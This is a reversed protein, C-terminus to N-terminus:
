EESDTDNSSEESDSNTEDLNGDNFRDTRVLDGDDALATENGDDDEFDEKLWYEEGFEEELKSVGDDDKVKPTKGKLKEKYVILTIVVVVLVAFFSVIVIILTMWKTTGFLYETFTPNKPNAVGGFVVVDENVGEGRFVLFLATPKTFSPLFARQYSAFTETAVSLKNGYLEGSAFDKLSVKKKLVYEGNKYKTLNEADCAYITVTASREGGCWTIQTRRGDYYKQIKAGTVATDEDGFDIKFSYGGDALKTIESIVVGSNQGNSYTLPTTIYDTEDNKLPASVTKDPNGITSDDVWGKLDYHYKKDNEGSLVAYSLSRSDFLEKGGLRYVYVENEGYVNGNNKASLEGDRGIYGNSENVRYVIVGKQPLSGDIFGGDNTRAEIMFYDGTESYSSLVLKCAKVRGNETTPYVVYTGSKTIPAIDEEGIWNLSQLTYALPMSPFLEGGGMIDFVGVSPTEEGNDYRYYDSVGLDHMLEHVVTGVSYTAEGNSDVIPKKTFTSATLLVYNEVVADNLYVPLLDLASIKFDKPVYYDANFYAENYVTLASRHPWLIDNWDEGEDASFVVNLGDVKGDFDSDLNVTAVDNQVTRVVERVLAQERLLRDIHQKAGNKSPECPNGEADFFRNDYGNENVAVYTNSLSYYYKPEYYSQPKDIVVVTESLFNTNVSYKGGSAKLFYESVSQPSTVYSRKLREFFTEDVDTGDNFRVVVLGYERTVSTDAVIAVSEYAGWESARVATFGCALFGTVVALVSILIKCFIKKM